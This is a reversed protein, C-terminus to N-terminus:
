LGDSLTSRLWSVSLALSPGALVCGIINYIGMAQVARPASGVDQCYWYKAHLLGLSTQSATYQQNHSPLSASHTAVMKGTCRSQSIQTQM